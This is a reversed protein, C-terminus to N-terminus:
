GPASLLYPLLHKVIAVAATCVILFKLVHGYRREPEFRGVVLFLVAAVFSITFIYFIAWM